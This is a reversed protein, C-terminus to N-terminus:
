GKLGGGGRCAARGISYNAQVHESPPYCSDKGPFAREPPERMRATKHKCSALRLLFIRNLVSAFILSINQFVLGAHHFFLSVNRVVISSGRGHLVRCVLQLVLGFHRPFISFVGSVSSRFSCIPLACTQVGTVLACRTHRRRSSFFFFFYM